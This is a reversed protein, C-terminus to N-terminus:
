TFLEGITSELATGVDITMHAGNSVVRRGGVVVDRVDDPGAAFVIADSALAPDSGALRNSSSGITVFDAPAGREIRGGGSWGLSEYGNAASISLLDDAGFLGREHSVLREHMELARMEEFPDIM